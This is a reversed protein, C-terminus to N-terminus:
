GGGRRAEGEEFRGHSGRRWGREVGEYEVVMWGALLRLGSKRLKSCM